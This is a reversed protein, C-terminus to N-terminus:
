EKSNEEHTAGLRDVSKSGLVESSNVISSFDPAFEVFDPERQFVLSASRILISATLGWVLFKEGAPTTYDFFHVRYKVGLWEREEFWHKESEKLFMELPAEFVSEVEGPNPTPKYNRVDDLLGIVPIVGLLHKSLFPELNAVVRVHSPELGIEEHAERLATASDDVDGEDRKGGPLAVEGSHSSLTCARKTLIVRLEGEPSQHLCVLVAARKKTPFVKLDNLSAVSAPMGVSSTVGGPGEEDASSGPSTYQRLQEAISKLKPSIWVEPSGKQWPFAQYKVPVYLGRSFAAM